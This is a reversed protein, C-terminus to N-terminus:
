ALTKDADSNMRLRDQCVMQFNLSFFTHFQKKLETDFMKQGLCTSLVHTKIKLCIARLFNRAAQEFIFVCTRGVNKPCFQTNLEIDFM